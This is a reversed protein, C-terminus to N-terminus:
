VAVVPSAVQVFEQLRIEVMVADFNPKEEQPGWHVPLKVQSTLQPVESNLLEEVLLHVILENEVVAHVGSMGGM